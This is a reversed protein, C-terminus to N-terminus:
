VSDSPLAKSRIAGLRTVNAAGSRRKRSRGVPKLWNHRFGFQNLPHLSKQRLRTQHM